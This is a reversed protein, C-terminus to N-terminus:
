KDKSISLIPFEGLGSNWCVKMLAIMSSKDHTNGKDHTVHRFISMGCLM